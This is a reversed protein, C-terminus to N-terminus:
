ERTIPSPDQSVRMIQGVSCNRSSPLRLKGRVLPSSDDSVHGISVVACRLDLHDLM